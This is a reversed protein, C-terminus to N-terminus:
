HDRLHRSGLLQGSTRDPDGRILGERQLRGVAGYLAGVAVDSWLQTRNEQAKHRIQHGHMPGFDNLASLVFLRSSNVLSSTRSYDRRHIGDAIRNAAGPLCDVDM